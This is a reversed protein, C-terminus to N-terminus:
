YDGTNPEFLQALSRNAPRLFGRFNQFPNQRGTSFNSM